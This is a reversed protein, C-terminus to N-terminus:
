GVHIISKACTLVVLMKICRRSIEIPMPQRYCLLLPLPLPMFKTTNIKYANSNLYPNDINIIYHAQINNYKSIAMLKHIPM